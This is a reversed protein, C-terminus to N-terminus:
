KTGKKLARIKAALEVGGAQYLVVVYDAIDSIARDYADSEAAHRIDTVVKIMHASIQSEPIHQRLMQYTEKLPDADM